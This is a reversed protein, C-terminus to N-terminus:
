NREDKKKVKKRLSACELAFCQDYRVGYPKQETDLLGYDKPNLGESEFAEIIRQAIVGFQIKDPSSNFRYQCFDVKEWADLVKDDIPTIDHKEDEDSTNITGNSAYITSWRAGPAGLTHTNDFLPRFSVSSGDLRVGVTENNTSFNRAVFDLGSVPGASSIYGSRRETGVLDYWAIRSGNFSTIVENITSNVCGVPFLLGRNFPTPNAAIAIAASVANGTGLLGDGGGGCTLWLNISRENALTGPGMNYPTINLTNGRNVNDIELGYSAGSNNVRQHNIYAGWAPEKPSTSDNVSFGALGISGMTAVPEDSTRSAGMVGIGSYKSVAALESISESFRWYSKELWLRPDGFKVGRYNSTNEMRFVRGTLRTLDNMGLDANAIGTIVAGPALWWTASNSTASGINYTGPPVYVFGNVAAANNFANRSNSAGTPDAGYDLVSVFQSNGTANITVSTSDSSLTVNNGARLSKFQLTSGSKSAYVGTGTGVNAGTNVEGPSSNTITTAGGPTSSISIGAGSTLSRFRLDSGSKSDYLPVGGGLNSATNAEATTAISVEDSSPTITIGNGSTLSKFRLDVGSKSAYIGAGSGLNSATNTEGVADGVANITITNADSTLSINNGEVLSKLKIETGQKSSYIGEGTGLNGATNAEGTANVTITNSDSSLSVNNGGQLSKFRLDVGQKSAFVGEGGGLNSATNAEGSGGTGVITLNGSGLITEGNITKISNGSVLEEQKGDLEEQLGEVQRIYIKTESMKDKKDRSILFAAIVAIGILVLLVEM